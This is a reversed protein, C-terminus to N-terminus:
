RASTRRTRGGRRPEILVTQHFFQLQVVPVHHRPFQTGRRQELGVLALNQEEPVSEARSRTEASVRPRLGRELSMLFVM